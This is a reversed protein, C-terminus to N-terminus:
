IHQASRVENTMEESAHLTRSRHQFAYRAKIPNVSSTGTFSLGCGEAAGLCLRVSSDVTYEVNVVNFMKSIRM